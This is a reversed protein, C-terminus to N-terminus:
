GHRRRLTPVPPRRGAEATYRNEYAKRHGEHRLHEQGRPVQGNPVNRAARNNRKRMSVPQEDGGNQDEREAEDVIEDLQSGDGFQDALQRRGRHQEHTADADPKGPGIQNVDRHREEPEDTDRVREVQQVVHVTQRTAHAGDRGREHANIKKQGAVGCQRTHGEGECPRQHTEQDVVIWGGANEHPVAPRKEGAEHEGAECERGRGTQGPAKKGNHDHGRDDERDRDEVRGEHGDRAQQFAPRNRLPPLIM